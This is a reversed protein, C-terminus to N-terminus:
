RADPRSSLFRPPAKRKSNDVVKLPEARESKAILEVYINLIAEACYSAETPSMKHVTAGIESQQGIPGVRHLATNLECFSKRVGKPLDTDQLEELYAEFAHQLRKKVSGDGILATVAAEFRARPHLM